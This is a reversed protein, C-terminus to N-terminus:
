EGSNEQLVGNADIVIDLTSQNASLNIKYIVDGNMETVEEISNLINGEYLSDVVVRVNAPLNVPEIKQESFIGEVSYENLSANSDDIQEENNESTQNSCSVILFAALIVFTNKM